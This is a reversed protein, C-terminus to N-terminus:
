SHSHTRTLLPSGPRAVDCLCYEGPTPELPAATSGPMRSRSEVLQLNSPHAPPTLPGSASTKPLVVSRHFRLTSVDVPNPAPCSAVTVPVGPQVDVPEQSWARMAPPELPSPTLLQDCVSSLTLRLNARAEHNGWSPLAPEQGEISSPPTVTAPSAQLGQDLSAPKHLVRPPEEREPSEGGGEGDVVFVSRPIRACSSTTTEMYSCTSPGCISQDLGAPPVCTSAPPKRDTPPMSSSVHSALGTLSPATIFHNM